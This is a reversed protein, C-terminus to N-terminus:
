RRRAAHHGPGRRSANQRPVADRGSRSVDSRAGRRRSGSSKPDADRLDDHAGADPDCRGQHLRSRDALLRAADPRPRRLVSFDDVPADPGPIVGSEVLRLQNRSLPVDAALLVAVAISLVCAPDLWVRLSFRSKAVTLTGPNLSVFVWLLLLGFIVALSLAAALLPKRRLVETGDTLSVRTGEIIAIGPGPQDPSKASLKTRDVPM